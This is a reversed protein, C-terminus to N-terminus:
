STRASIKLLSNRARKLKITDGNGEEIQKDLVRISKINVERGM